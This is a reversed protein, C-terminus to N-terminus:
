SPVSVSAWSRPQTGYINGAHRFNEINLVQLRKPFTKTVQKSCKM